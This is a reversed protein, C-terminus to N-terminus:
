PAEPKRAAPYRKESVTRSPIGERYERRKGESFREIAYRLMTRPMKKYHEKLFGEEAGQDRKGAERLMWGTAKHILDEKDDLLLECLKFTDDFQDKRIFHFTAIVAIRREWMSESKVLKYLIKRDRKELYAGVILHASSDVLDWNNVFGANDLYLRYIREKTKEDGKKFRDVMLLLSLLREEHLKSHLLTVIEEVSLGKCKKVLERLVPVRIGMFVDGEAYEGKGTKFFGQAHEARKKDSLKQLIFRLDKISKFEQQDSM